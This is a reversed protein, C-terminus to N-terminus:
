LRLVWEALAQLRSSQRRVTQAGLDAQPCAGGPQWSTLKSCVCLCWSIHACTCVCVQFIRACTCVCLCWSIHACTCVCVRFYIPVHARVSVLIHSCLHVRLGSIYSCLHVRLCWYIHVCTCMCVRFYIPLPAFASKLYKLVPTRLRRVLIHYIHVYVWVGACVCSCIYASPAHTRPCACTHTDAFNASRGPRRFSVDCLLHAPQM